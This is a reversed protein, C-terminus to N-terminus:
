LRLLKLLELPTEISHEPISNPKEILYGYTAFVTITKAKQSAIIDSDSDGVYLTSEPKTDIKDCAYLIPEPSPKSQTLTDGCIVVKARDILNLKTLLPRAFREHKNTVIGWDINAAELHTLVKAMGKFLKAHRTLNNDYLELFRTTLEAFNEESDFGLALIGKAGSGIHPRIVGYDLPQKHHQQLLENLCYALDYSTDVLTGDLDFLVGQINELSM